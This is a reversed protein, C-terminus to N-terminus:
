VVIVFVTLGMTGNIKDHCMFVANVFIFICAKFFVLWDSKEFLDRGEGKKQETHTVPTVM